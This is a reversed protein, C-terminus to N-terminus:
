APQVPTMTQTEARPRGEPQRAELATARGRWGALGLAPNPTM